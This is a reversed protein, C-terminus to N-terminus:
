VYRRILLFPKEILTYSLCAVLFTAIFYTFFHFSISTFSISFKSFIKNSEELIIIHCLYASYSFIAMMRLFNNKFVITNAFKRLGMILITGWLFAVSTFGFINSYWVPMVNLMSIPYLLYITLPILCVFLMLVVRSNIFLKNGIIYACLLGIFLEDIRTHTPFYIKKWYLHVSNGVEFYHTLGRIIVVLLITFIVLSILYKNKLLFLLPVVLYFHEEVALSWLHGILPTTKEYFYNNM